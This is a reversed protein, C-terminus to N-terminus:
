RLRDLEDSDMNDLRNIEADIEDEVVKATEMVTKELMAQVGAM